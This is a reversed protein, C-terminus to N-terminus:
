KLQFVPDLMLARVMRRKGPTTPLPLAPAIPLLWKIVEEGTSRPLYSQVKASARSHRTLKNMLSTRVLLTQTNIWANGGIWGKVTPPDFLDQGLLQLIHVLEGASLKPFPLTRLTGVTLDIPSKTLTGKYKESWFANSNLVETLLTKINYNSKRFAAGWNRIVRPDPRSDSVFEKWFKEAIHEAVRPKELIIDIIQDGSFAGTRGMFTVRGTDHKMGNFQYTGRNRDTGWGTFSKAAAKVDNESYHGRGLTFLELLERAFNENPSGKVNDNGDLYILMAPDRAIDHLLARYNGMASRRLLQNQLYMLKPQQVKEISSTFHNAWFVTMHENVPSDTYLLHKMWWRKLREGEIKMMKRARKKGLGSLEQMRSVNAWPTLAPLPPTKIPASQLLIRVAEARSKGELSKVGGWEQGLATRAVLHRTDSFSLRGM